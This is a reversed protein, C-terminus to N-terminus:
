DLFVNDMFRIWRRNKICYLKSDNRIFLRQNSAIPSTKHHPEDMKLCAIIEFHDGTGAIFVTGKSSICYIKHDAALLPSDYTESLDFQGSWLLKGTKANRCTLTAPDELCYLKEEYYVPLVQKSLSGTKIEWLIDEKKLDNKITEPKIAIIRKEAIIPIIMIEQEAAPVAPILSNGSSPCEYKWIISGDKPSLAITGSPYSLILQQTSTNSYSLLSCEGTSKVTSIEKMWLFHSEEANLCILLLQHEKETEAILYLKEDYLLFCSHEFSLKQSIHSEKNLNKSWLTDGDHNFAAVDGTRFFAWVCRPNAIPPISTLSDLLSKNEEDEIRSIENEWVTTGNKMAIDLLLIRGFSGSSTIFINTNYIAPTSYNDGPLSINWVINTKDSWEVPLDTTTTSGNM